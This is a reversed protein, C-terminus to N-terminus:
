PLLQRRLDLRERGGATGSARAGGRLRRHDGDAPQHHPARPWIRLRWGGGGVGVGRARSQRPLRRRHVRDDVHHPQRARACGVRPFSPASALGGTRPPKAASLDFSAEDGSKAGEAGPRQAVPAGPPAGEKAVDVWVNRGSGWGGGRQHLRDPSRSTEIEGRQHWCPRMIMSPNTWWSGSVSGVSVRSHSSESSATTSAWPLVRARNKIDLSSSRARSRCTPVGAVTDVGYTLVMGGSCSGHNGPSSSSSRRMRAYMRQFAATMTMLALLCASPM